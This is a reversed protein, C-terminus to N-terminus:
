HDESNTAIPRRIPERVNRLIKTSEDIDTRVFVHLHKVAEAEDEEQEKKPPHALPFLGFPSDDSSHPFM